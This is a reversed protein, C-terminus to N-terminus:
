SLLFIVVGILPLHLIDRAFLAMPLGLFWIGGIDMALAFKTDGGSRLIGNVTHLNFSKFPLIFAYALLVQTTMKLTEGEVGYFMPFLNAGFVMIIGLCVSVVPIIKHVIKAYDHALSLKNEGIKNGILISTASSTGFFLVFFINFITDAVCVSTLAQTSIGAYIKNYLTVGIVWGMENLLVPYNTVTVKKIFGHPFTFLNKITALAVSKKVRMILFLLGLEFIRAFLTALAAGEVGMAPFGLKGFIFIFNLGTNVVLAFISVILPTKAQHMTRLFSGYAFSLAVFPFTYGTIELYTVGSSIVLPDKTYFSIIQEAFAVTAFAFATSSIVAAIFTFGITRQIGKTDKDGFYQAIFIASGSCIGVMMLIFVFFMQNALNVSAIATEDIRGVMITDVIHVASMLFEHLAVPIALPLMEKIFDRIRVKKPHIEQM